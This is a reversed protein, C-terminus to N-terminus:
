IHAYIHVHVCTYIHAHVHTSHPDATHPSQAAQEGTLTHRPPCVGHFDEVGRLWFPVVQLCGNSSNHLYVQTLVYSSIDKDKKCALLNTPMRVHLQRKIWALPSYDKLTYLHSCKYAPSIRISYFITFPDTHKNKDSSNSHRM